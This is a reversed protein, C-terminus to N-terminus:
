RFGDISARSPMLQATKRDYSGGAECGAVRKMLVVQLGTLM